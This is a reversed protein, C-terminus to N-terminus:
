RSEETARTGHGLQRVYALVDWREKESLITQWAPMAMANGADDPRKMGESISKFLEEDSKAMRKADRVFNAPKPTLALGVPGDGLGKRGHCYHCHREYIDRGAEPDGAVATSGAIPGNGANASKPATVGPKAKSKGPTKDEKASCGWVLAALLATLVVTKGRSIKKM